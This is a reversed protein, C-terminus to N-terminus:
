DASRTQLASRMAAIARAEAGESSGQGQPQGGGGASVQGTVSREADSAEKRWSKALPQVMASLTPGKLRLHFKEAVEEAVRERWRRPSDACLARYRSRVFERVEETVVAPRGPKSGLSTNGHVYRLLQRSNIQMVECVDSQRMGAAVLGVALTNRVQRQDRDLYCVFPEGGWFLTVRAQDSDADYESVSYFHNAKKGVSLLLQSSSM